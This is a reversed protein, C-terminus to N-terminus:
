HRPWPSALFRGPIQGEGTVASIVIRRQNRDPYVAPRDATGPVRVAALDVQQGTPRAYDGSLDLDAGPRVLDRHDNRQQAAHVQVPGDHRGIGQVARGGRRDVQVPAARVQDQRGFVVLGPQEIGQVGQGPVVDRDGM